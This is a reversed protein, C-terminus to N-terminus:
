QMECVFSSDAANVFVVPKQPNRNKDFIIHGTVYDGEDKALADRVADPKDASGAKKMADALLYVSDYGLAAYSLFYGTGYLSTYKKVFDQVRSVTNKDSFNLSYYCNELGDKKIADIGDWGDAGIITADLGADRIQTILDAAKNYYDPIYIVDCKQRALNTIKMKLMQKGRATTESGSVSNYTVESVISGGNKSFAMRFNDALSISYDNGEDIFIVARKKSLQKRAFLAAKNGQYSDTVCTRFIYNGTQTISEKTAAPAILINKDQQAQQMISLVCGSILPGIIYDCNQNKTVDTYVDQTLASIRRIM